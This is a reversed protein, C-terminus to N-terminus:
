WKNHRLKSAVEEVLQQYRHSKSRVRNRHNCLITLRYAPESRTCQFVNLEARQEPHRLTLSVACVRMCARVCVRVCVQGVIKAGDVTRIVNKTIAKLQQGASNPLIKIIQQQGSHTSFFYFSFFFRNNSILRKAHTKTAGVFKRQVFPRHIFLQRSIIIALM